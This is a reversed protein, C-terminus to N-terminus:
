LHHIFRPLELGFVRAMKEIQNKEAVSLVLKNKLLRYTAVKTANARRMAEAADSDSDAAVVSGDASVTTTSGSASATDDAELRKKVTLLRQRLFRLEAGLSIKVKNSRLFSVSQTNRKVMPLKVIIRSGPLLTEAARVKVSIVSQMLSLAPDFNVELHKWYNGRNIPPVVKIMQTPVFTTAVV